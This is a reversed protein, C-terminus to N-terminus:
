SPLGCQDNPPNKSQKDETDLLTAELSSGLHYGWTCNTWYETIQYRKDKEQTVTVTEKQKRPNALTWKPKETPKKMQQSVTQCSASRERGLRDTRGMHDASSSLPFFLYLVKQEYDELHWSAIAEQHNRLRYQQTQEHGTSGRAWRQTRRCGFNSPEWELPLEEVRVHGKTESVRGSKRWHKLVQSASPELFFLNVVVPALRRGLCPLHWFVFAQVASDWQLEGSPGGM